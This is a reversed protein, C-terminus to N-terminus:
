GLIEEFKALAGKTMLVKQFRVLSVPDAQQVEVVLINPLNRSALFVNEDLDDTIVLVSDYGM